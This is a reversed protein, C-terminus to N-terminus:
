TTLQRRLSELHKNLASPSGRLDRVGLGTTEKLARSMARPNTFGARSAVREASQQRERPDRLLELAQVCRLLRTRAGLGLKEREFLAFLTRRSIHFHDAIAGSHSNTSAYNADLYTKVAHLRAPGLAEPGAPVELLSSVLAAVASRLVAGAADAHSEMGAARSNLLVPMVLSRLVPHYLLNDVSALRGAAKGDVGLGARDLNLQIIHMGAPAHFEGGRTLDLFRVRPASISTPDGSFNYTASPASVFCALRLDNLDPNPEWTGSAPGNRLEILSFGPATLSWASPAFQATLPSIPELYVPTDVVTGYWHRWHEFRQAPTLGDPVEYLRRRGHDKPHDSVGAAVGAPM